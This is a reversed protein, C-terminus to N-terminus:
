NKHKEEGKEVRERGLKLKMNRVKKIEKERKGRQKLELTCCFKFEQNEEVIGTEDKKNTNTTLIMFETFIRTNRLERKWDM